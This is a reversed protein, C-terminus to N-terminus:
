SINVTALLSVPTKTQLVFWWIWMKVLLSFPFFFFIGNTQCNSIVGFIWWLIINNFYISFVKVFALSRCLRNLIKWKGRKARIPKSVDPCICIHNVEPLRLATVFFHPRTGLQASWDLKWDIRSLMVDWFYHDRIKLFFKEQVLPLWCTRLTGSRMFHVYVLPFSLCIFSLSSIDYFYAYSM